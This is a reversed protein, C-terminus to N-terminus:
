PCGGAPCLAPVFTSKGKAGQNAYFSANAGKDLEKSCSSVCDYPFLGGNNDYKEFMRFEGREYAMYSDLYLTGDAVAYLYDAVYGNLHTIRLFTNNVTFWTGNALMIINGTDIVAFRFEDADIDTRYHSTDGTSTNNQFWCNSTTDILRQDQQKASDPINQMDVMKYENVAEPPLTTALAAALDAGSKLGSVTPKAFNPASLKVIQGIYGGAMFGTDSILSAITDDLFMYPFKTSTGLSSVFVFAINNSTFWQGNTDNLNATGDDWIRLDFAGAGKTGVTWHADSGTIWRPDRYSNEPEEPLV